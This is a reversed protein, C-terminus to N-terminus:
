GVNTYISMVFRTFSHHISIKHESPV